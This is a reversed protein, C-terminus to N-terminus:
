IMHVKRKNKDYTLIKIQYIEGNYKVACKKGPCTSWVINGNTNTDLDINVFEKDIVKKLKGM